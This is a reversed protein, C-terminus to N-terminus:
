GRRRLITIPLGKIQDGSKGGRRVTCAAKVACPAGDPEMLFGVSAQEEMRMVLVECTTADSEGIYIATIHERWCSKLRMPKGQEQVKIEAYVRLDRRDGRTSAPVQLAAHFKM